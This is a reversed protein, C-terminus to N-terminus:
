KCELFWSSSFKTLCTGEEPLPPLTLWETYGSIVDIKSGVKLLQSFINVTMLIFFISIKLPFYSNSKEPYNNEALGFERWLMKGHLDESGMGM